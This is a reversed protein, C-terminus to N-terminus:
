TMFDSFSCEVSVEQVKSGASIENEATVNKRKMATNIELLM